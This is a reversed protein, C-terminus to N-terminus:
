DDKYVVLLFDNASGNLKLKVLGQYQGIGHEVHVILDNKKLDEFALLETRVKPPAVRPRRKRTGFIEEETIIALSEVPWEFGSSIRGLCLYVPNDPPLGDPFTDVYRLQIGYPLLLSRLRDAQLPTSCVLLVTHQSQKKDEIWSALPALLGDERFRQIELRIASNDTVSFEYPGSAPRDAHEAPSVPLMKVTIPKKSDLIENAQSWELYLKRPEVCLRKKNCASVFNGYTKEEFAQATKALEVPDMLMFLANDPVYELVTGLEPYVLSILSGLGSFTGETKLQSVVERVKTVPMELAAAQTRIRSIVENICEKKLIAERAPLIVAEPITDFTRQDVASFFRLSDVIDGFFEVRLPDSYLPSFVDIIGGRVCYDGPEEVMVSRVYGGSILKTIFHERDIEEGVMILEAYNCLEEKPLIKQLLADVTTVVLLPEDATILRYLSRIRKAATETHFAMHKFPLINYPPYYIFPAKNKGSFFHLDDLLMEADKPTPVIVVLTTGLAQYIRSALYAKAAGSIGICDIGSTRGPIREILAQLSIKDQNQNM